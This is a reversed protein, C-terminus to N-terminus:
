DIYEYHRRIKELADAGNLVRGVSVRVMNDTVKGDIRTSLNKKPSIDFLSEAQLWDIDNDFYLVIYNHEEGLVETFEIEPKEEKEETFDMEEIEFEFGFQEMDMSLNDLEIKLADFDWTALEGTKNDALRYANAQEESLDAIVVPVYKLGLKKAAKLRTHGVVIVHDKDVVIPQQFGFEAISAAVADVADDNHRPNNQYPVVDEVLMRVVELQEGSKM